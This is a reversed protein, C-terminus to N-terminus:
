SCIKIHDISTARSLATYIAKRFDREGMRDECKGWKQLDASDFINVRGECTDGQSKHITTAYGVLVKKHFDKLEFEM